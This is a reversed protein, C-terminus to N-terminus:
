LTDPLLEATQDELVLVYTETAPDYIYVDGTYVGADEERPVFIEMPTAFVQNVPRAPVVGMAEVARTAMLVRKATPKDFSVPNNHMKM